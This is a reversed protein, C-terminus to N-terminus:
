LLVDLGATFKIVQQTIKKQFRANIERFLKPNDTSFKHDSRNLGRSGGVNSKKIKSSILLFIRYKYRIILMPMEFKLTMNM